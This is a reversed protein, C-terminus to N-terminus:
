ILHQVQVIMRRFEHTSDYFIEVNTHLIMLLKHTSEDLDSNKKYVYCASTVGVHYFPWTSCNKGIKLQQLHNSTIKHHIESFSLPSM